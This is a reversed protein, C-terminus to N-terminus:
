RASSGRDASATLSGEDAHGGGRIVRAALRTQADKSTVGLAKEVKAWEEVRVYADIDLTDTGGFIRDRGKFRLHLQVQSGLTGGDVRKISFITGEPNQETRYARKSDMFRAIAYDIKLLAERSLLRPLVKGVTVTLHAIRQLAASHKKGRSIPSPVSGVRNPKAPKRVRKQAAKPL